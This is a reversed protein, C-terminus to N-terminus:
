ETDETNKHNMENMAAVLEDIEEDPLGHAKAGDEITEEASLACGVCHLGFAWLVEEGHACVELAKAIPMDRTVKKTGKTSMREKKCSAPM